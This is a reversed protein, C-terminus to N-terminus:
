VSNLNCERISKSEKIKEADDVNKSRFIKPLIEIVTGQRTEIVGVYNKISIFDKGKKRQLSFAQEIELAPDNNEAVFNKLSQFSRDDLYICDFRDTPKEPQFEHSNWITGFECIHKTTAM